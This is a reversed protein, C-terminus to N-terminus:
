SPLGESGGALAVGAVVDAWAKPQELQVLHGADDIPVVGAGAAALVDAVEQRAPGSRRGVTTVLRTTSSAGLAAPAFAVFDPVEDRVVAAHALVDRRVEPPLARWSDAGVMGELFAAVGVDDGGGEDNPSDGENQHPLRDVFRGGASGSGAPPSGGENQHPLRDVLRGGASGSGPSPSGGENQHSLRDVFRGGASGSRPTEALRAANATIAAHLSPAAPGVLPEHLVAATLGPTPRLAVALALTAGGSCGALTVPRRHPRHGAADTVVSALMSVQEQFSPLTPPAVAPPSPAGALYGPRTVLRVQLARTVLHRVVADFTGPGFGVGHVLVVVADADPPGLEDVHM